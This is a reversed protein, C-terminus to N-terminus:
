ETAEKSTKGNQIAKGIKPIIAMLLGLVLFGGPSQVFLSIAFESLPTGGYESGGLPLVKGIVIGGTGIFERIFGILMLAAMFGAGMGIGDIMSDFVKNKSAYAEARGLIMCNVVILSIFIGLKEFLEPAFAECLMEVMIVFSAIIVIYCPIRVENPIFNKVLSVLVNSCTVVFIVLIGMGIASELSTTTALAPCMGLMFVFIPNEKIFGKLLNQKTTM